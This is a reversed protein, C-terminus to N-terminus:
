TRSLVSDGFTRTSPLPWLVMLFMFVAWTVTLMLFTGVAGFHVPRRGNRRYLRRTPFSSDAALISLYVIGFTADHSYAVVLSRAHVSATDRDHVGSGVESEVRRTRVARV